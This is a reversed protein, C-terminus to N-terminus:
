TSASSLSLTCYSVYFLTIIIPGTRQVMSITGCAVACGFGSCSPVVKSAMLIPSSIVAFIIIITVTTFLFCHSVRTFGLINSNRTEEEM